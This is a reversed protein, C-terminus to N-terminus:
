KIVYKKGVLPNLKVKRGYNNQQITHSNNRINRQNQIIINQYEANYNGIKYQKPNNKLPYKKYNNSLGVIDNYKKMQVAKINNGSNKKQNFKRHESLINEKSLEINVIKEKDDETLLIKNNNNNNNNKKENNNNNNNNKKENNNNSDKGTKNKIDPLLSGETDNRSGKRKLKFKNEYNAMPLSEGLNLINNPIRITKLLVADSMEDDDEFGAQAKFFEIRKKIIDCELIEKCSPREDPNVKFLMKLLEKIDNSYKSCVNKYKGKKVQNYLGEMDEAMFPPHLALMEYTICALSWIDSKTNYPKDEWVEPSAYYPTGTQTYGMNKKIVKSVNLDGIKASGDSFLFINASKMDRHLINLDHLSKLGKTMQIFIRWIDIEDILYHMKKFQCIKQYLDGKDAYEMILCLSKDSEEIFAEKYSIVFSSKISALIRVENLSNSKEKESLKQLKVKKLAYINNDTKRRVKYVISYSGDGLKSLIEFDQM